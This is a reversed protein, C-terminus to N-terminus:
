VNLTYSSVTHKGLNLMGIEAAVYKEDWRAQARKCSKSKLIPQTDKLRGVAQRKTNRLFQRGRSVNAAYNWGPFHVPEIHIFGGTLPFTWSM